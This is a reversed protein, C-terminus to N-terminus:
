NSFLHKSNIFKRKRRFCLFTAKINRVEIIWSAVYLYIYDYIITM